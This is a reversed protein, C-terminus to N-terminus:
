RLAAFMKEIHRCHSQALSEQPLLGSLALVAPVRSDKDLRVWLLLDVHCHHHELCNPDPSVDGCEERVAPIYLKIM